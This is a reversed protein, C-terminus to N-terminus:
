RRARAPHRATAAAPTRSLARSLVRAAPVEVLEYSLYAVATSVVATFVWVYAFHGGFLPVGLVPFAFYLVAVHWLFVSYSWKGLTVLPPWSLVTGGARPALAFPVLLLAAFATGLIIRANFEYPTPHTLGAPGVQGSFWAVALAALPLPWRPGRYTVGERELEACILGVSFWAAYSPPWIQLNIREHLQSDLPYILHPYILSIPTTLCLAWWRGRKGLAMYAPLALYFAVEVCLSWMHTLGEILGHPVYIQILLLNAAVQGASVTTLPPLVLLVVVVCTLYAPALRIFRRRFYGDRRWTGRALLFASLAFFVAVFYDFREALGNTM